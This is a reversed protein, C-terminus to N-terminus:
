QTMHNMLKRLLCTYLLVAAGQWVAWGWEIWQPNHAALVSSAQSKRCWIEKSQIEEELNSYIQAFCYQGSPQGRNILDSCASSEFAPVICERFSSKNRHGELNRNKWFVTLPKQPYSWRLEIFEPWPYTPIHIRM